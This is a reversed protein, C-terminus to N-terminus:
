ACARENSPVQLLFAAVFDAATQYQLWAAFLEDFSPALQNAGAAALLQQVQRRFDRFGTM